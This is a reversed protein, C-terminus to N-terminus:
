RAAGGSNFCRRATGPSRQTRGRRRSEPAAVGPPPEPSRHNGGPAQGSGAPSRRGSLVAGSGADRLPEAPTRGRGYDEPGPRRLRNRLLGAQGPPRCRGEPGPPASGRSRGRGRRHRGSEVTERVVSAAPQGVADHDASGRPDPSRHCIPHPRLNSRAPSRGPAGKAARGPASVFGRSGAPKERAGRRDARRAGPRRAPM